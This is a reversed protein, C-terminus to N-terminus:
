EEGVAELDFIREGFQFFENAGKSFFGILSIPVERSQWRIAFRLRGETPSLYVLRPLTTMPFESPVGPAAVPESAVEDIPEVWVSVM